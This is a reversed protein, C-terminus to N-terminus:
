VHARGIQQVANIRHQRIMDLVPNRLKSYAWARGTMHVGRVGAPYITQVTVAEVSTNGAPDTATLTAGAPPTAYAVSFTGGQRVLTGGGAKLTADPEVTGTLTVASRPKVPHEPMRVALAPPTLDVVITRTTKSSGRPFGGQVEAVIVHKGEALGALSATVTGSSGRAVQKGDVTISAPGGDAKVTVVADKLAAAGLNTRDLGSVALSSGPLAALTGGAVLVMVVPVLLVPRLVRPM